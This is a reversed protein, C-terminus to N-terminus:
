GPAPSAAPENVGVTGAVYELKDNRFEDPFPGALRTQTTAWASPVLSVLPTVEKSQNLLALAAKEAIPRSLRLPFPLKPFTPEGFPQLSNEVSTMRALPLLGTVLMLKVHTLPPLAQM